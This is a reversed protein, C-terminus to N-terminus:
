IIDVFRDLIEAINKSYSTLCLIKQKNKKLIIKKIKDKM